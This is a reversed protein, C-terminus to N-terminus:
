AWDDPALGRLQDAVRAYEDRALREVDARGIRAITLARTTTTM